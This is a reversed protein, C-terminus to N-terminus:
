HGAVKLRPTAANEIRYLASATRILLAHDIVAPTALSQEDLANQAVEVYRAPDAQFITTEGGESQIYVQRGGSAALRFVQRGGPAGLAAPGDQRRPLLRDGRRQGRVFRTWDFAALSHRPNITDAEM